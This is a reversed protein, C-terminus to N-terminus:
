TQKFDSWFIIEDEKKNKLLKKGIVKHLKDPSIGTGPRKISLMNKKLKTGKRFNKSCVLSRRITKVSNLEENTLKKEEKGLAIKAQKSMTTLTKLEKPEISAKQDIGPLKRSITFHKEIASAGLSIAIISPLLSETHDSLGVYCNFKKKFKKLVSINSNAINSPYNSTCQMVLLPNGKKKFIKVAQEVEKMNSMGTSLLIPLRTKAAEKLFPINNINDSSIKLAKVGIKVLENISEIDFPTCLFDINILKCFKKLEKIQDINLEYSKIIQLQTKKKLKKDKKQYNAKPAYKSIIRNAYFKQFKVCDAGNKKAEKIMKKALNISGNHNIGIEAIFYPNSSSSFIKKFYNNSM